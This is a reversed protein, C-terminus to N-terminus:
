AGLRKEAWRKAARVDRVVEGEDTPPGTLDFVYYGAGGDNQAITFREDESIWWRGDDTRWELKVM